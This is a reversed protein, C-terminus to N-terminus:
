MVARQREYHRRAKARNGCTEMSCWRRSHNRSTDLFLWGCGEGPCDGVRDLKASTLLDAADRVVPWLLRDLAEEDGAWDWAFGEGKPVIQSRALLRSLEGNWAELDAAQPALGRAVASFIRYIAQGLAIARELVTTAAEPRRAAQELLRQVQGDNLIGAHQSWAVLDPYGKLWEHPRNDGAYRDIHNAFDLSLRGGAFELTDVTRRTDKM